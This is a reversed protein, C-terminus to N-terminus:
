IKIKKASVAHEFRASKRGTEIIHARHTIRDILARCLRPDPFVSTGESFPLNTTIIIPRKEHRLSIVQFLLEADSKTLALYGLEDLILLSYRAYHEIIRSLQQQNKAEVLKNAMESTTTFRVATGQEIAQIGLAIALHTKGTGPEGVFIISEAEQIYSGEALKKIQNPNISVSKTFDFSELAKALPFRAEKTRRAMRKIKREESEQFFLDYLVEEHTKHQREAQELLGPLLKPLANLQLEQCLNIIHELTM